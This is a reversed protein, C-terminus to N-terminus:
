LLLALVIVTMATMLVVVMITDRDDQSMAEAV